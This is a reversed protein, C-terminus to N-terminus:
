GGLHGGAVKDSQKKSVKPLQKPDNEKCEVKACVENLEKQNKEETITEVKKTKKTGKM